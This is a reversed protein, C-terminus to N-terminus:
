FVDEEEIEEYSYTHRQLKNLLPHEPNNVYFKGPFAAGLCDEMSFCHGTPDQHRPKQSVIELCSKVPNKRVDVYHNAAVSLIERLSNYWSKSQSPNPYMMPLIFDNGNTDICHFLM